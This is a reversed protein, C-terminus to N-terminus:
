NSKSAYDAYYDDDRNAYLWVWSIRIRNTLGSMHKRMISPVQSNRRELVVLVFAVCRVIRSRLDGLVPWNTGHM